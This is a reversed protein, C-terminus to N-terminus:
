VRLDSNYELVPLEDEGLLAMWPSYGFVAKETAGVTYVAKMM